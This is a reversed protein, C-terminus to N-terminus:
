FKYLLGLSVVQHEYDRYEDSTAPVSKASTLEASSLNNKGLDYNYSLNASLHSTFAYIVGASVAYVMDERVSPASGAADNGSTYDSELLKGGLDLGLKPTASWHYSLAYTSDFYNL